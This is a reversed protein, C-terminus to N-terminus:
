KKRGVAIVSLGVQNFTLRDALRFLPVLKNFINIPGGPLTKKRFISGSVFWGLIGALNFYWTKIDVFDNSLLKTLSGRTYRRYHGLERDLVNYLRQHAPVLIILSGGPALLRHCNAVALADDAIHEVVNLAFVTDFSGLISAYMAKFAKDSLDIRFVNKVSPNGAFKNKLLRCYHENFDSVSLPIGSQICCASINGIGSGIELVDGSMHPRITAFIWQNLRDAANLHELTSLGVEDFEIPLGAPAPLFADLQTQDPMMPSPPDEVKLHGTYEQRLPTWTPEQRFERRIPEQGVLGLKSAL